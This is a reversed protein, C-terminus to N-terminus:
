PAEARKIGLTEIGRKVWPHSEFADWVTTDGLAASGLLASHGKNLGFRAQAVWPGGDTDTADLNIADTFGYKDDWTQPYQDRLVRLGIAADDPVFAAGGVMSSPPVTGTSHPAPPRAPAAGDVTYGDPGLSASPGWLGVAFTQSGIANDRCWAANAATAHRANEWWDMGTQDTGFPWFSLPFHYVFLTGAWEYVVRHGGYEGVPRAFGLWLENATESSIQPHAAALLYLTLQEATMDWQSVWGASGGEAYDGDATSTRAMRLVKKGNSEAILETFDLQLLLQDTLALLEPDNFYSAAVIAGDLALATDITSYEVGPKAQGTQLDAFHVLWGAYNATRLMTRLAGRARELVQGRDLEGRQVGLVWAALGFGTAALSAYQLQDDRDNVLGFGPSTPDSNSHDWFWRISAAVESDILERIDDPLDPARKVM